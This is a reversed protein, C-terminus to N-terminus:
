FRDVEDRFLELATAVAALRVGARGLDGYRREVSHPPSRHSAAGFWVLGVPKEATGGDPGAVGTISVVVDAMSRNLAGQAMAEAVPGSVAGLDEILEPPVGLEDAKAANSYTVWGREVVESSGPIETLLAAVLGGTCSEAVAIRLDKARAATLLGRAADLLAVPFPSSLDAM